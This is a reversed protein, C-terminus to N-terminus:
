KWREEEKAAEWGDEYGYSYDGIMSNIQDELKEIRGLLWQVHDDYDDYRVYRGYSLPLEGHQNVEYRVIDKDNTMSM